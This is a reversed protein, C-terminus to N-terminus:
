VEEQSEPFFSLCFSPKHSGDLGISRESKESSSTNTVEQELILMDIRSSGPDAAWFWTDPHDKLEQCGSESFGM